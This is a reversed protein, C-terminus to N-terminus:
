GSKQKRLTMVYMCPMLFLSVFIEMILGGIAALAMPQLIDGGEGINLALLIFGTMTFVTTMIRPRLRIKAAEIVALQPTINHRSMLEPIYTFM